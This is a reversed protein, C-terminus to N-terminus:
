RKLHVTKLGVQKFANNILDFWNDEIWQITLDFFPERQKGRFDYSGNEGDVNLIAALQKRRDIGENYNGHQYPLQSNPSSSYKPASMRTYDHVIWATIAGRMNKKAKAMYFSNYFEYTPKYWTNPQNDYNYTYDIINKKLKNEIKNCVINIADMLKKTLIQNLETKTKILQAM